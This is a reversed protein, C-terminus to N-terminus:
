AFSLINSLYSCVEDLDRQHMWIKTLMMCQKIVDSEKVWDATLEEGSGYM